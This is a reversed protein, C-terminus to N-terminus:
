HSNKADIIMLVDKLNEKGTVKLRVGRGEAYVKASSIIEKIESAINSQLIEKTAKEGLAFSITFCNDLPMFYAIVRKKDRIRYNWGYKSFNWEESTGPCNKFIYEKFSTWATYNKGLVKKLQVEDPIKEKIVLISTDM